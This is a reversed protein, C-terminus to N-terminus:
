WITCSSTCYSSILVIISLLLNAEHGLAFWSRKFVVVLRVHVCGDALGHRDGLAKGISLVDKLILLCQLDYLSWLLNLALIVTCSHFHDMSFRPFSAPPLLCDDATSTADLIWIMGFSVPIIVALVLLIAASLFIHLVLKVEIRLSLLHFLPQYRDLGILIYIWIVHALWWM